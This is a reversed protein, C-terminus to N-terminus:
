RCASRNRREWFDSKSFKEWIPGGFVAKVPLSSLGEVAGVVNSGADKTWQWANGLTSEQGGALQHLFSNDPAPTQFMNEDGSTSSSGGLSKQYEEWDSWNQYDADTAM